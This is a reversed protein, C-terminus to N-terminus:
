SQFNGFEYNECNLDLIELNYNSYRKQINQLEIKNEEPRLNYAVHAVVVDFNRKILEDALFTSDAGGSVGVVVKKNKPIKQFGM